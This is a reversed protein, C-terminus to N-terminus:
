LAPVFHGWGGWTTVYRGSSLYFLTLLCRTTAVSSTTKFHSLLQSWFYSNLYKIRWKKWCNRIFPLHFTLMASELSPAGPKFQSNNDFTHDVVRQVKLLKYICNLFYIQHFLLFALIGVLYLGFSYWLVIKALM